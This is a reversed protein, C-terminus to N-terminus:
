LSSCFTNNSRSFFREIKSKTSDCEHQELMRAAEIATNVFQLFTDGNNKLDKQKKKVHNLYYLKNKSAASRVGLRFNESTVHLYQYPSVKLDKDQVYSHITLLCEEEPLNNYYPFACKPCNHLHDKHKSTLLHWPISPKFHGDPDVPEPEPEVDIVKPRKSFQEKVYDSFADYLENELLRKQTMRVIPGKKVPRFTKEVKKLFEQANLLVHYYVQGDEVTKLLEITDFNNKSDFEDIYMLSELDLSRVIVNKKHLDCWQQVARLDNSLHVMNGVIPRFTASVLKELSSPRELLNKCKKLSDKDGTQKLDAILIASFLAIDKNFRYGPGVIPVLCRTVLIHKLRYANMITRDVSHLGKMYRHVMKLGARM